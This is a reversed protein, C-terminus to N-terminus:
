PLPVCAKLWGDFLRQVSLRILMYVPICILVYWAETKTHQQCLYTVAGKGGVREFMATISGNPMTLSKGVVERAVHHSKTADAGAMVEEGWCVRAHCRLNGMSKGDTTDLYRWVHRRNMGRGKCSKANCEFVHVRRPPHGVYDISPVPHFFAYVPSNWDKSLHDANCQHLHNDISLNM